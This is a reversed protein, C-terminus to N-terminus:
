MLVADICLDKDQSRQLGNTILILVLPGGGKLACQLAAAGRADASLIQLPLWPDEVAHV